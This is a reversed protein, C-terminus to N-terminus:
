TEYEFERVKELIIAIGGVFNRQGDVPARMSVKLSKGVFRPFQELCFLKRDIGPSSVELTYEGRILNAEVDLVSDLQRSVKECDDITVGDPSDIYVRLTTHKGYSLYELGVFEYGLGVVTPTIVAELALNRKM